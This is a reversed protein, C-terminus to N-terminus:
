VDDVSIGLRGPGVERLVLDVAAEADAPPLGVVGGRGSALFARLVYRLISAFNLKTRLGCPVTEDRMKHPQCDKRWNRRIPRSCPGFTSRPCRSGGEHHHCGQDSTM